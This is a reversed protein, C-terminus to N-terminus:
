LLTALFVGVVTLLINAVANTTAFSSSFVSSGTADAISNLAATCTGSGCQGGLVDAKDMKLAHRCILATVIHPVLTAAIGIGLILLMHSDFAFKGTTLAKAAIFLNLGVSKLFWRTGEPFNGYKPQRNSFWGCALGLLLACTSDGFSYNGLKLAGLVIAASVAFFVYPVDTSSSFEKVYGIADAAKKISASMGSVKLTVGREVHTDEDVTVKKGKRTMSQLVVGFASMLEMVSGDYEETVIIERTVLDIATYKSDGLESLYEDDLVILHQAPSIVTLIDGCVLVTQQDFPLEKDDRFLKALQLAHTFRDELAEVTMGICDSGSEIRYARPFVAATRVDVEQRLQPARNTKLHQKVAGQLDTRLLLPGIVSAFLIALVTGTIYTIAYVISAADGLGEAVTLISTQTLAGAAMGIVEDRNLIGSWGLLYMFLFSVACFIVAQLIFKIGQSRLSKFFAPGAEYGITFCFLISFVTVLIGPVQFTVFRSLIFAVLLTGITAGFSFSGIKIFGICYGIALSLFIALVPNNSLYTVISGIRLGGCLNKTGRCTRQM